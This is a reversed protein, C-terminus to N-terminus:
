APTHTKKASANDSTSLREGSPRQQWFTSLGSAAKDASGPQTIAWNQPLLEQYFGDNLRSDVLVVVGRDQETRVVRGASQLVRVFGPYRCAIDYGDRGQQRHHAIELDLEIDPPPLGVGIVIAGILRDGRYDIGEGLSGGTIVFGVSQGGRELRDLLAELAQPDAGRPQQWCEREPVADAFARYAAELFAFSPLFVLYHGEKAATTRGVLEVLAPLSKDRQAWTVPIWDILQCLCQSPKFPSGVSLCPTEPGFGFLDRFYSLPSLTASMLVSAHTTALTREIADRADLCIVEVWNDQQRGAGHTKVVCRQATTWQTDILLLRHADLVLLALTNSLSAFVSTADNLEGPPNSLVDILRQLSRTLKTPVSDRIGVQHGDRDWEVRVTDIPKEGRQSSTAQVSTTQMSTAQSSLVRATSEFARSLAPWERRTEQAALRYSVSSFSVSRMARARKPLNHAEDVLVARAEKPDILVPHAAMPDFVHNYDCVVIPMWPLLDMSLAHPCLRYERALRDICEADLLLADGDALLQRVKRLREYYGLTWECVAQVQHGDVPEMEQVRGRECPCSARRARLVLADSKLGEIALDSLASCAADRGSRKATLWVIRSIHSEGLAKIAPFLTGLSKGSGTPAEVVLSKGDRLSRYTAAALTRQGARLGGHPFQMDRASNRLANRRRQMSKEFRVRVHLAEIALATVSDGDADVVVPTISNDRLNVYRLELEPCRPEDQDMKQGMWLWAYLRLQARDLAERSSTLRQVPVLTSKIEILRHANEDVLDIRGALTVQIGDIAVTRKLAVESVLDTQEDQLRQHAVRGQEATPGAPGRELDGERCSFEALDRVGISLHNFSGGDVKVNASVEAGGADLQGQPCAGASWM